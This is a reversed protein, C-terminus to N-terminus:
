AARREAISRQIMADILEDYLRHWEAAESAKTATAAQATALAAEAASARAEAAKLSAALSAGSGWARAIEKTAAKAKTKAAEVEELRKALASEKRDLRAQLGQLQRM